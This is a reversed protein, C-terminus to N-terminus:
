QEAELAKERRKRLLAALEDEGSNSASAPTPSPSSGSNRKQQNAKRQELEWKWPAVGPPPKKKDSDTSDGLAQAATSSESRHVAPSMNSDNSTNQQQQKAKRQELEWKWAPVGPPPEDATKVTGATSTSSSTKLAGEDKRNQKLKTMWEPQSANENGNASDGRSGMTGENTNSSEDKSGSHQRPTSTKKLLVGSLEGMLAKSGIPVLQGRSAKREKDADSTRRRSDSMGEDDEFGDGNDGDPGESTKEGTEKMERSLVAAFAERKQRLAEKDEENLVVATSSVANSDEPLPASTSTGVRRTPPRRGARGSARVPHSLTAAPGSPVKLAAMNSSTTSQAVAAVTDNNSQQKAAVTESSIM